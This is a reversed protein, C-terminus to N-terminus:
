KSTMAEWISNASCLVEGDTDFDTDTSVVGDHKPLCMSM